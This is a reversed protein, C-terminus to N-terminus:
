LIITFTAEQIPCVSPKVEIPIILTHKDVHTSSALCGHVGDIM